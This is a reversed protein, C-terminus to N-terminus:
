RMEQRGQIKEVAKRDSEFVASLHVLGRRLLPNAPYIAHKTFAFSAGLYAKIEPSTWGFIAYKYSHDLAYQLIDFWSVFYLNHERFAPYEAGMYKDLIYKGRRFCLFYGICHGQYSYEFIVGGSTGDILMEKLFSRSLKDFHIESQKYVNEYLRYYSNIKDPNCFQPDGTPIVQLELDSRKRLKRRFDSRRNKSFRALFDAESTFNIPVYALAQGEILVFGAAALFNCIENALINEKASMFPAESAIDKVILFKVNEASMKKLLVPKLEQLNLEAPFLAFESVTTGIFLARHRFIFNFFKDPLFRSVLQAFSQISKDATLLLDFDTAFAPIQEGNLTVFCSKFDTPPNYLFADILMKPELQFLLSDNNM